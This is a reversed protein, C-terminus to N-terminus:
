KVYKEFIEQYIPNINNYGVLYGIPKGTTDKDFYFFCYNPKWKKFVDRVYKKDNKTSGFKMIYKRDKGDGIRNVLSLDSNQPVYYLHTAKGTKMDVSLYPHTGERILSKDLKFAEFDEDKALPYMETLDDGFTRVNMMLKDTERELSYGVYGTAEMNADLRLEFDPFGIMKLPKWEEPFKYKSLIEDIRM